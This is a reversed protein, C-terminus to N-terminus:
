RPLQIRILLATRKAQKGRQNVIPYYNSSIEFCIAVINVVWSARIGQKHKSHSKFPFKNILNSILGDRIASTTSNLMQKTTTMQHFCIGAVQHIIGASEVGGIRVNLTLNEIKVVIQIEQFRLLEAM